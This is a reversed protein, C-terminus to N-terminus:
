SNRVYIPIMFNPLAKSSRPALTLKCGQETYQCSLIPSNFVEVIKKSTLLDILTGFPIISSTNTWTPLNM